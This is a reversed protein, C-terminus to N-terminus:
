RADNGGLGRVFGDLRELFEDREDNKGDQYGAAYGEDFSSLRMQKRLSSVDPSAGAELEAIRARLKVIEAEAEDARRIAQKREGCLRNWRAIGQPSKAPIDPESGSGNVPVLPHDQEAHQATNM